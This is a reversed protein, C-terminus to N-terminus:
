VGRFPVNPLLTNDFCILSCHADGRSFGLAILSSSTLRAVNVDYPKPLTGAPCERSQSESKMIVLSGHRLRVLSVFSPYSVTSYDAM